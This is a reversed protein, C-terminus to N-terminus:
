SAKREAAPARHALELLVAVSALHLIAFWIM